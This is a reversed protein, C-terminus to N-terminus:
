ALGLSRVRHSVPTLVIPAGAKRWHQRRKLYRYRRKAWEAPGPWGPEGPVVWRAPRVAVDGNHVAFRAALPLTALGKLLTRRQM